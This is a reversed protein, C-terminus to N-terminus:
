PADKRIRNVRSVHMYARERKRGFDSVREVWLHCELAGVVSVWQAPNNRKPRSAVQMGILSLARRAARRRQRGNM